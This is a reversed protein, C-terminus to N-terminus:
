EESRRVAKEVTHNESNLYEVLEDGTLVLGQEKEATDVNFTRM